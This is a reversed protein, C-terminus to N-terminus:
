MGYDPDGRGKHFSARRRPERFGTSYDFGDDYSADADLKAQWLRDVIAQSKAQPDELATIEQQIRRSVRQDYTEDTM